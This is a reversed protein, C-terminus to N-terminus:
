EMTIFKVFSSPQNTYRSGSYPNVDEIVSKVIYSRGNFVIKDKIRIRLSTQTEITLNDVIVGQNLNLRNIDQTKAYTAHFDKGTEYYITRNNKVEKYPYYTMKFSYKNQARNLGLM